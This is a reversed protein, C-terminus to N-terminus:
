GNLKEKRKKLSTAITEHMTDDRKQERKEKVIEKVDKSPKGSFYGGLM